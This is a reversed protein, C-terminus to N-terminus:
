LTDCFLPMEEAYLTRSDIKLIPIMSKSIKKKQTSRLCHSFEYERFADVWELLLDTAPGHKLRVAHRIWDVVTRPHLGIHKAFLHFPILNVKLIMDLYLQPSNKDEDSPFGVLALLRDLETQLQLRLGFAVFDYQPDSSFCPYAGYKFWDYMAQELDCSYQMISIAKALSGYSSSLRNFM